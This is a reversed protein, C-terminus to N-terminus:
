ITPNRGEDAVGNKASETGSPTRVRCIVCCINGRVDDCKATPLCFGTMEINNFYAYYLLLPIVETPM